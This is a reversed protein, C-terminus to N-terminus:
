TLRKVETEFFTKIEPWSFNQILMNPNLDNDATDFYVLSKKIHNLNYNIGQYKKQFLVLIDSLSQGQNKAIYFLDVFDRKIGRSSIADIKMCAIDILSALNVGEFGVFSNLLGYPYYFFSVRTGGFSALLTDALKKDTLLEGRTQLRSILRDVSFIERSFFDLDESVRHGLQLAAATGGALYFNQLLGNASLVELNRNTQESITQKFM